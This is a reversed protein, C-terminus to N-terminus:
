PPPSNIRHTEPPGVTLGVTLLVPNTIVITDSGGATPWVRIMQTSEGVGRIRQTSGGVGRIRQTSGGM